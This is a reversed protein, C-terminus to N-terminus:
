VSTCLSHLCTFTFLIRFSFNFQKLLSRDKLTVQEEFSFQKSFVYSSSDPNGNVLWVDYAIQFNRTSSTWNCKENLTCSILLIYWYEPSIPEDIRYTFQFGPVVLQPDDEEECLKDNKCPIWRLMDSKHTKLCKAEFAIQTINRLMTGCSAAYDSEVLITQIQSEPVIVM